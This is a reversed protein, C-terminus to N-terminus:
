RDPPFPPLSAIFRDLDSKRFFTEVGEQERDSISEEGLNYYEYVLNQVRDNFEKLAEQPDIIPEPREGSPDFLTTAFAKALAERRDQVPVDNHVFFREIQTELKTIFSKHEKEM